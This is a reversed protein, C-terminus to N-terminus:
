IKYTWIYPQRTVQIGNRESLQSFKPGRLYRAQTRLKKEEEQTRLKVKKEKDEEEM